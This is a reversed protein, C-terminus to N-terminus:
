KEKELIWLTYTDGQKRLTYTATFWGKDDHSIDGKIVMRYLNEFATMTMMYARKMSDKFWFNVSSRGKSSTTYRLRLKFVCNDREEYSDSGHGTAYGKWGTHIHEGDDSIFIKYNKNPKEKIIEIM